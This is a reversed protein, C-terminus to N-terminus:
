NTRQQFVVYFKNPICGFVERLGDVCFDVKRKYNAVSYSLFDYPGAGEARTFLVHDHNRPKTKTASIRLGNFAATRGRGGFFYRLFDYHTYDILFDEMCSFPCMFHGDQIVLKM